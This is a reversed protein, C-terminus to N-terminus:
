ICGFVAVVFPSAYVGSAIGNYGKLVEGAYNTRRDCGVADNHLVFCLSISEDVVFALYYALRKCIILCLLITLAFM